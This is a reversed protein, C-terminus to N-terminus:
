GASACLDKARPVDGIRVLSILKQLLKEEDVPDYGQLSKAERVTADPDMTKVKTSPEAPKNKM